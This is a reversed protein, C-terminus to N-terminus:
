NYTPVPALTNAVCTGIGQPTVPLPRQIICRRLLLETGTGYKVFCKQMARMGIAKHSYSCMVVCPTHLLGAGTIDCAHPGNASWCTIYATMHGHCLLIACTVPLILWLELQTQHSLGLLKTTMLSPTATCSNNYICLNHLWLENAVTLPYMPCCCGQTGLDQACM